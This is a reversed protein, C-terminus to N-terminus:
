YALQGNTCFPDGNAVGKGGGKGGGKGPGKDGAKEPGKGGGKGPNKGSGKGRGKGGGKGQDRGKKPGGKGGKRGKKGGGKGRNKKVGKGGRKKRKGKRKRALQRELDGEDEVEGEEEREEALAERAVNSAGHGGVTPIVNLALPLNAYVPAAMVCPADFLSCPRALNLIGQACCEDFAGLLLLGCSVSDGCKDCASPCCVAGDESLRGSVCAPDAAAYAVGAATAAFVLLAQLATRM